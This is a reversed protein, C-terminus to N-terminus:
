ITTTINLNSINLTRVSKIPLVEVLTSATITNSLTYTILASGTKSRARAVGGPLDMTIVEPHASSWIGPEGTETLLPMSFCAIDGVTM